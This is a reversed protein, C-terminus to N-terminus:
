LTHHMCKTIIIIKSPNLTIIIVVNVKSLFSGFLFLIYMQFSLSNLKIAQLTVICLSHACPNM